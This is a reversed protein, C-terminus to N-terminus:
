NLPHFEFLSLDSRPNLNVGCECVQTTGSPNLPGPVAWGVIAILGLVLLAACWRSRLTETVWSFKDLNARELYTFLAGLCLYDTSEPLLV